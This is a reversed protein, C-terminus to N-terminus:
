SYYETDRLPWQVFCDETIKYGYTIEILENEQLLIDGDPIAYFM